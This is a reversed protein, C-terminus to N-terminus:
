IIKNWGANNLFCYSLFPNSVRRYKKQFCNFTNNTEDVLGLSGPPM